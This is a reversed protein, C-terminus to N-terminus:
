RRWRLVWAPPINWLVLRPACVQSFRRQMDRRFAVAPPLRYAHVYQFTSFTGGPRLSGEIADLVGRTVDAPLSAFPLGSVIHDVPGLTRAALLSQLDAASACVCDLSSWRARLREVFAPEIEVALFRGDRGIRELIAATFAGTGAGLEVIRAAGSMDLGRVMERALAQSSPAIAGISRPRRLFRGFLLAHERLGSGGAPEPVSGARAPPRGRAPM